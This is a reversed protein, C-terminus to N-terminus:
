FWGQHLAYTVFIGILTAAIGIAALKWGTRHPAREKITVTVRVDRDHAPQLKTDGGLGTELLQRVAAIAQRLRSQHPPHPSPVPTLLSM